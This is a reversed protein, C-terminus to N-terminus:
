TYSSTTAGPRPKFIGFYDRSKIANQDVLRSAIRHTMLFPNTASDSRQTPPKFLLAVRNSM